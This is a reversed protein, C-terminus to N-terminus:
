YICCAYNHFAPNESFLYFVGMTLIVFGKFIYCICCLVNYRLLIKSLCFFLVIFNLMCCGTLIFPVYMGGTAGWGILFCNSYDSIENSSNAIPISSINKEYKDFIPSKLYILAIDNKIIVQDYQEHTVATFTSHHHTPSTRWLELDGFVALSPLNDADVNPGLESYLILFCFLPM